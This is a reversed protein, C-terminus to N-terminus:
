RRGVLRRLYRQAERKKQPPLSLYVEWWETPEGLDAVLQWPKVGLARALSHITSLRPDLKGRELRSIYSPTPVRHNMRIRSALRAQSLGVAKRRWRVNDGFSM